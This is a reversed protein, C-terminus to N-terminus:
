GVHSISHNKEGMVRPVFYAGMGGIAAVALQIAIARTQEHANLRESPKSTTETKVTANFVLKTGVHASM